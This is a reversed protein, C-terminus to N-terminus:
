PTLRELAIAIRLYEQAAAARTTADLAVARNVGLGGSEDAAIIPILRALSGPPLGIQKVAIKLTDWLDGMTKLGANPVTTTAADRYFKAFTKVYAAEAPVKGVDYAAQLAMQFPDAPPVPTPPTPPAPPPQPAAGSDILRRIVDSSKIVTGPVVLLECRGMQAAEVIVIYQDTITRTVVKTPAEIFKGRLRLPGTDPTMTLLGDPSCFVTFPQASSIVYFVDTPLATASGPAPAPPPIPAPIDPLHIVNPQDPAQAWVPGAFLLLILILRKM